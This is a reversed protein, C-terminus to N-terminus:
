QFYELRQMGEWCDTELNEVDETVYVTKGEDAFFVRTLKGNERLFFWRYYRNETAYDESDFCPFREWLCLVERGHIDRAWHGTGDTRATLQSLSGYRKGAATFGMLVPCHSTQEEPERVLEPEGQANLRRSVWLLKEAPYACLPYNVRKGRGVSKLVMDGTWPQRLSPEPRQPTSEAPGGLVKRLTERLNM